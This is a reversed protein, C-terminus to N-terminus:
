KKNKTLLRLLLAVINQWLTSSVCILDAEPRGAKEAEVPDKRPLLEKIAALHGKAAKGVDYAKMDEENTLYCVEVLVSDPKLKRLWGLSGVWTVSDHIAGKDPVNLHWSVNRSFVRAIEKERNNHYYVETGRLTATSNSNFHISFALDNANARNNVWSITEKLNLHDPVYVYEIFEQKLLTVIADRLRIALAGEKHDGHSAGIDGLHHGSNVFVRM